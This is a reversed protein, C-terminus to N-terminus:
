HVLFSPPSSHYSHALLSTINKTVEDMLEDPKTRHLIRTFAVHRDGGEMQTMLQYTGFAIRMQYDAVFLPPATLPPCFLFDRLMLPM